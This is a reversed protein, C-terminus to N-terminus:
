IMQVNYGKQELLSLVGGEGLLHGAGVAFLMSGTRMADEMVPIWHANRDTIFAREAASPLLIWAWEDFLQKIGEADGSHYADILANMGNKVEKYHTICYLLQRWYENTPVKGITGIHEEFSELGKVRIGASVAQYMLQQDLAMTPCDFVNIQLQALLVFPHISLLEDDGYGWHYRNFTRLKELENEDMIVTEDSRMDFLNFHSQYLADPSIDTELYLTEISPLLDPMSAPWQYRDACVIHMTGFLYSPKEIAAHSIRYLWTTVSRNM